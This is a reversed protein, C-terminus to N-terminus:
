VVCRIKTFDDIHHLPGADLSCPPKGEALNEAFNPTQSSHPTPKLTDDAPSPPSSHSRLLM